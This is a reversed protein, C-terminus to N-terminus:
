HQVNIMNCNREDTHTSPGLLLGVTGSKVLIAKVQSIMAPVMKPMFYLVTTLVIVFGFQRRSIHGMPRWYFMNHISM